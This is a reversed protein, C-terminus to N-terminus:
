IRLAMEHEVELAPCVCFALENTFAASLSNRRTSRPAGSLM